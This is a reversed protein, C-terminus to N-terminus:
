LKYGGNSKPMHTRNYFKAFDNYVNNYATASNNYKTYEGNSLDIKAVLWLIYIEDYPAPVLMEKTLDNYEDYAEFSISEGNGPRHRHRHDGEHTDIIKTKILGDLTSLWQIKESNTYNNPKLADVRNLAEMVTM